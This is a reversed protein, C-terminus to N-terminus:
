FDIHYYSINENNSTIIMDERRYIQDCHWRSSKFLTRIFPISDSNKNITNIDIMCCLIKKDEEDSYREIDDNNKNSLSKNFCIFKMTIKENTPTYEINIDSNKEIEVEDNLYIRVWTYIKQDELQNVEVEFDMGDVNYEKTLSKRDPFVSM